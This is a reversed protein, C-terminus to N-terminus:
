QTEPIISLGLNGSHHAVQLSYDLVFLFSNVVDESLPLLGAVSASLAISYDTEFFLKLKHISGIRILLSCLTFEYLVKLLFDM